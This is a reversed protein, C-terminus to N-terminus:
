SLVPYRVAITFRADKKMRRVVLTYRGSRVTRGLRLPTRGSARAIVTGSEDVVVLMLSRATAFTLEAVLKGGVASLAYRRRPSLRTVRGSFTAYRIEAPPTESAQRAGLARLMGEADVIGYQVAEPLPVAAARIAREVDVKPAEPRFSRALGALGSVLPAASSTGCFNVYEAGPYPATNCGPAAVQVWDGFNSWSYLGDEPTTGAVSIVGEYAAPYNLNSNGSNGAAAVVIVGKRVAYAVAEALTQTPNEGGLSLSIV